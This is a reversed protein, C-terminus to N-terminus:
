SRKGNNHSRVLNSHVVTLKQHMVRPLQHNNILAVANLVEVTTKDPSYNERLFPVNTCYMWMISTNHLTTIHTLAM